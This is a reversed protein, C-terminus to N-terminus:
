ALRAITLFGDTDISAREGTRFWGDGLMETVSEAADVYGKMVNPGRVLLFGETGQSVERGTAPDVVRVSIGLLPHGATGARRGTQRHSGAGYDPINLSIIPACEPCGYGELPEVGFKAAFRDRLPESLPAGGV